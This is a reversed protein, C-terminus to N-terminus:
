GDATATSGPRAAEPAAPASPLALLWLLTVNVVPVAALLLLLWSCGADRMRRTAVALTPTLTALLWLELLQSSGGLVSILSTVVAQLAMWWWFESRPARGVFLAYKAVCTTV